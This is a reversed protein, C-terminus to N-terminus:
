NKRAKKNTGNCLLNAKIREVVGFVIPCVEINKLTLNLIQHMRKRDTHPYERCAKPRYEYITCLNDHQLFPCPASRFVYDGDADMELYKEVIVSPKERLCKAIREVDRFTIIPSITKCCNACSTCDFNEFEEKHAELFLKDLFEPKIRKLRKFLLKNEANHSVALEKLRQIPINYKM